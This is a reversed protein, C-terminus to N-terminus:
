RSIEDEWLCISDVGSQLIDNLKEKDEVSILGKRSGFRLMDALKQLFYEGTEVGEGDDGETLVRYFVYYGQESELGSSAKLSLISREYALDEVYELVHKLEELNGACIGNLIDQVGFGGQYMEGLCRVQEVWHSRKEAAVCQTEESLVTAYRERVERRIKTKMRKRFYELASGVSYKGSLEECAESLKPPSDSLKLGATVPDIQIIRDPERTLSDRMLFAFFSSSTSIMSFYDSHFERWMLDLVQIIEHCGNQYASVIELMRASDVEPETPEHTRKTDLIEKSNYVGQAGHKRYESFICNMEHSFKPKFYRQDIRSLFDELWAERKTKAKGDVLNQAENELNM